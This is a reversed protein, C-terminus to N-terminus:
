NKQLNKITRWLMAGIEETLGIMKRYKKEDLYKEERSFYLLYKTEKLSGYSIEWFNIMVAKKNRAYGEIYNLIVSLAARRLQSVVGFIEDRPFIKTAEYVLKVLEDMKIKLIEHFSGKKGETM